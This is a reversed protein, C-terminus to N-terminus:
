FPIDDQSEVAGLKAKIAELMEVALEKTVEVDSVYLDKGDKKKVISGDKDLKRHQPLSVFDYEGKASTGTKRQCGKITVAGIVVDFKAGYQSDVLNIIQM